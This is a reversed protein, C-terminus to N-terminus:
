SADSSVTLAFTARRRKPARVVLEYAGADLRRVLRLPSKGAVRAVTTGDPALMALTLTRAGSFRLEATTKGGMVQHVFRRQRSRGSVSGQFSAGGEREADDPQAPQPAASPPAAPRAGLAALAGAADVRGHRVAGPLPAASGTIAQEVDASTAGPRAAMALAALGSVLPAASSTGCFNVYDADIWPATNCGPAAVKVWSGHNSWSYLADEATTAAVSLVQPYGAPYVPAPSGSNGAAAVLLVGKSAAYQVADALTQTSADSGLSMSIIRAGHDAAWVIGAALSATDGMGAADLVKIPMLSCSWCVGAQGERNNTRASIVGASATGHGGDDQPDADGDVFDYGGVIAGQLDPHAPDVGTDLVAVVISASGTSAEWARPAHVMEPGWQSPWLSDNPITEFGRVTVDREVYEVAPSARLEALAERAEGAPVDAVALDLKRVGDEFDAGARELTARAEGSSVDDEFKVLLQGEVYDPRSAPTGGSGMRPSPAGPRMRGARPRRGTRVLVTRLRPGRVRDRDPEQRAARESPGADLRWIAAAVAGAAILVAVFGLVAWRRHLRRM